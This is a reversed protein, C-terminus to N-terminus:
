NGTPEELVFTGMRTPSIHPHGAKVLAWYSFEADKENRWDHRALNVRLRGPQLRATGRRKSLFGAPLFVEATWVGEGPDHKGVTQFNEPPPIRGPWFARARFDATLFGEPSVEPDATLLFNKIFVEGSLAVQIEYYQRADGVPDIFIEVVDQQHLSGEVPDRERSFPTPEEAVFAVYLGEEAWFIRVATQMGGRAPLAVTRAGQWETDSVEGDIVPRQAVHPVTVLPPEALAIGPIGLLVAVRLAALDFWKNRM